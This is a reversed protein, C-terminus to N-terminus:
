RTSEQVVKFAFCSLLIGLGFGLTGSFYAEMKAKNLKKQSDKAVNKYYDLLEKDHLRLDSLVLVKEEAKYLEKAKDETIVIGTIPSKEGQKIPVATQAYLNFSFLLLILYKTM